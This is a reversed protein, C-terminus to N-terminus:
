ITLPRVQTLCLSKAHPPQVGSYAPGSLPGLGENPEVPACARRTADPEYVAARFVETANPWKLGIRRDADEPSGM